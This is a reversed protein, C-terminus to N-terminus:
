RLPRTRLGYRLFVRWALTGVLLGALNELVDFMDVTRNPVFAQLGETGIAFSVLLSALLWARVPLRCANVALSLLAFALFHEGRRESPEPPITGPRVLLVTLLCWYAICILRVIFM